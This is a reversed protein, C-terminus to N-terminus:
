STHVPDPLVQFSCTTLNFDGKQVDRPYSTASTYSRENSVQGYSEDECGPRMGGLISPIRQMRRQTPGPSLICEEGGQGPFQVLCLRINGHHMTPDAAGAAWEATSRRLGRKYARSTMTRVYHASGVWPYCLHTLM